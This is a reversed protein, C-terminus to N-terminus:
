FTVTANGIGGGGCFGWGIPTFVFSFVPSCTGSGAIYTNGGVHLNWVNSAPECNFGVACTGIIGLWTQSPADYIIAYVGDLGGSGAITVHLTNPMTVTPCCGGGVSKCCAAASAVPTLLVNYPLTADCVCQDQSVLGALITLTCDYTTLGPASFATFVLTYDTGTVVLEAEFIGTIPDYLLSLLASVGAKQQFWQCPSTALQTLTWDGTPNPTCAPQDCASPTVVITLPYTGTGSSSFETVTRAICCNIPTYDANVELAYLVSTLGDTLQLSIETGTSGPQIMVLAHIGTAGTNYIWACSGGSEAFWPITFTGNFVAFDGTFGVGTFSWSSPTGAVCHDCSNIGGGGGGFDPCSLSFTWQCPTGATCYPCKTGPATVCGTGTGTGSGCVLCCGTKETTVSKNERICGQADYYLQVVTHDQYADGQQCTGCLLGNPICTVPSWTDFAPLVTRCPIGPGCPIGTNEVIVTYTVGCDLSKRVVLVGAVCDTELLPGAVYADYIWTVGCDRSIYRNIIGSDCQDRTRIACDSGKAVVLPLLDEQPNFVGRRVHTFCEGGPVGRWEVDNLGDLTWPVTGVYWEEQNALQWLLWDAAFQATLANLTGANSPGPYAAVEYRHLVKTWPQGAVQPQPFQALNLAALTTTSPWWGNAPAGTGTAPYVVEVTAPVLASLDNAQNSAFAFAGGRRKRGAYLTAQTTQNALATLANQAKVTGDLGRVIRQGVSWAVADLVSPLARYAAAYSAVPTGYASNIPDANITLGLVSGIQAYINAWTTQADYQLSKEWWYYRSDVLSLLWLGNGPQAATSLPRPPLMWLLTSIPTKYNGDDMSFVLPNFTQNAYAQDRLTKLTGDDVVVHCHAFRSAGVPWYLRDIVVADWPYPTQNLVPGDTLFGPWQLKAAPFIEQPRINQAIWGGLSPDSGQTIGVLLGGYSLIPM